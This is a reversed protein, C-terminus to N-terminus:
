LMLKWALAYGREGRGVCGFCMPVNAGDSCRLLPDLFVGFELFCPIVLGEMELFHHHSNTNLILCDVAWLQAMEPKTHAFLRSQLDETRTGGMMYFSVASLFQYM